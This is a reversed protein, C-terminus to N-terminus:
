WTFRDADWVEVPEGASHARAVTPAVGRTVGTFTRPSTGGAPASPLTIREGNVDIDMPYDGASTSLTVSGTWTLTLSTAASTIGSSLTCVGDGWAYRSTDYIGEAPADAPELFVTAQFTTADAEEVYGLLYGDDYSRGLLTTSLGALRIRDGLTTDFWANYQADTGFSYYDWIGGVLDFTAGTVRLRQDRGAAVQLSALAYLENRAAVTAEVHGEVTGISAVLADDQAAVTLVPTSAVGRAVRSTADRGHSPAGLLDGEADAYFLPSPAPPLRVASALPVVVRDAAYDHYAIGSEGRAVRALYDLATQGVTPPLHGAKGSATPIADKDLFVCTSGTWEAIRAIQADLTDGAGSPKGCRHHEVIRADSLFTPYIAVHSISGRFVGLSGFMGGVIIKRWAQSAPKAEDVDLIKVADYFLEYSVNAGTSTRTEKYVLQHLRGNNPRPSVAQVVASGVGAWTHRASVWDRDTGTGRETGVILHLFDATSSPSKQFALAVPIQEISSGSPAVYDTTFWVEITVDGAGLGLDVDDALVLAVGSSTSAPDFTAAVLGDVGPGDGDGLVLDGEIGFQFPVLPGIRSGPVANAAEESDRPEQLPYFAVPDDALISLELGSRLPFQQYAGLLDQAQFATTAMGEDPMQPDISTIRGLFRTYTTSDHVVRVRVRKGEVLNPYYTSLPNDPTFAGDPNELTFDLVGPTPEFPRDQKGVTVKYGGPCSPAVDTWVG